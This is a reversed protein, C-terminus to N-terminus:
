AEHRTATKKGKAGQGGKHARKAGYRRHAQAECAARKAKLKKAKFKKRCAKLAKKLKQARTLQKAKAAKVQSCGTVGVNTTTQIKAGNQATIETPM